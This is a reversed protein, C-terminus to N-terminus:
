MGPSCFVSFLQLRVATILANRANRTDGIAFEGDVGSEECIFEGTATTGIGDGGGCGLGTVDARATRLFYMDHDTEDEGLSVLGEAVVGDGFGSESTTAVPIAVGRTWARLKLGTARLRCRGAGGGYGANASFALLLLM